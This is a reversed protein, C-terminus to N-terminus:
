VHIHAHIQIEICQAICKNLLAWEHMTALGMVAQCTAASNVHLLSTVYVSTQLNIIFRIIEQARNAWVDNELTM